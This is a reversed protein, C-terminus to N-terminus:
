LVEATSLLTSVKQKNMIINHQFNSILSVWGCNKTEINKVSM